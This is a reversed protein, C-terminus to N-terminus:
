IQVMADLGDGDRRDYFIDFVADGFIVDEGDGSILSDRTDDAGGSVVDNGRGGNLRDSGPDGSLSDNGTSSYISDNGNGGSINDDARGSDITDDGGEGFITDRGSGSFVTDEGDGSWIASRTTIAGYRENYAVNDDGSYGYILIKRVDSFAYSRKAGNISVVFRDPNTPQEYLKILDDGRTGFVRMIRDNITVSGLRPGVPSTMTSPDFVFTQQPTKVALRGGVDSLTVSMYKDLDAAGTGALDQVIQTGAATGDTRWLEAIPNSPDPNCIFIFGIGDIMVFGQSSSGNAGRTLTAQHVTGDFTGDSTWIEIPNDHSSLTMLVRGDPMPTMGGGGPIEKLRKTGAVTGDTIGLYKKDTEPDYLQFFTKGNSTVIVSTLGSNPAQMLRSSGAVTGDTRWVEVAGERSTIAIAAGNLIALNFTWPIRSANDADHLQITGASTGDTSWFGGGVAFLARGNLIPVQDRTAPHMLLAQDMLHKIRSTGATTGDTAWMDMRTQGVPGHAVVFVMRGNVVATNSVMWTGNVDALKSTGSKTGDSRWLAITGDTNTAFFLLQGGLVTFQQPKSGTAGALVDRVMVTGDKTGDSRWLEKGHAGDDAAFYAVGNLTVSDTPYIGEHDTVLNATLLRRSELSELTVSLSM